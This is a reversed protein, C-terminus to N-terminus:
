YRDAPGLRPERRLPAAAAPAAAPSAAARGVPREVAGVRPAEAEPEWAEQAAALRPGLQERERRFVLVTEITEGGRRFWGRPEEAPLSESRLYEWGERAAANITESLTAAFQEHVSRGGGAGRKVRRPAPVVKYDYFSM